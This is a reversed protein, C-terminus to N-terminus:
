LTNNIVELVLCCTIGMPSNSSIAEKRAIVYTTADHYSMDLVRCCEDSM